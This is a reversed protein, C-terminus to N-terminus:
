IAILSSSHQQNIGSLLTAFLLSPAFFHLDIFYNYNQVVSLMLTTKLKLCNIDKSKYNTHLLFEYSFIMDVVEIFLTV